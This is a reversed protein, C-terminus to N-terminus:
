AGGGGREPARGLFKAGLWDRVREPGGQILNIVLAVLVLLLFLQSLQEM